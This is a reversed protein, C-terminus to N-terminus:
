VRVNNNQFWKNINLQAKLLIVRESRETSEISYKEDYDKHLSYYDVERQITLSIGAIDPVICLNAM